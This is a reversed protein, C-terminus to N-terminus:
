APMRRLTDIMKEEMVQFLKEATRKSFPTKKSGPHMGIKRELSKSVSEAERERFPLTAAHQVAHWLEHTLIEELQKKTKHGAFVVIKRKKPLYVGVITAGPRTPDFAGSSPRFTIKLGKPLRGPIHKRAARKVIAQKPTLRKTVLRKGKEGIYPVYRGPSAETKGEGDIYKAYPVNTGLEVTKGRVESWCSKELEGTPGKPVEEKLIKLGEEAGYELLRSGEKEWYSKLTQLYTQIGRVKIRLRVSM